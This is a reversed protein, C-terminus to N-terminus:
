TTHPRLYMDTYHTQPHTSHPHHTSHPLVRTYTGPTDTHAHVGATNKAHSPTHETHSCMHPLGPVHGPSHHGPTLKFLVPGLISVLPPVTCLERLLGAAHIDGALAMSACSVVLICCVVCPSCAPAQASSACFIYLSHGRAARGACPQGPPRFGSHFCSSPSPGQPPKLLAAQRSSAPGLGPASSLDTELRPVALGPSRRQSM